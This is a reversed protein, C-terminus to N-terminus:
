KQAEWGRQATGMRVTTTGTSVVSLRVHCHEESAGARWHRQERPRTGMRASPEARHPDLAENQITQLGQPSHSATHQLREELPQLPLTAEGGEDFKWGGWMTWAQLAESLSM